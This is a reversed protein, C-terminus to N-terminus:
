KAGSNLTIGADGVTVGLTNSGTWQECDLSISERRPDYGNQESAGLLDALVFLTTDGKWADRWRADNSKLSATPNDPTLEFSWIEGSAQRGARMRDGGAFYRSLNVRRMESPDNVVIVDVETRAGMAIAQESLGVEINVKKPSTCGCGVGFAGWAALVCVLSRGALSRGVLM